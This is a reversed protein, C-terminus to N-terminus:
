HILISCCSVAKKPSVLRKPSLFDANMDDWDWDEAGEMLQSINVDQIRHAKVPTKPVVLVDMNDQLTANATINSVDKPKSAMQKLTPQRENDVSARSSKAGSFSGIAGNLLENMFDAEERETRTVPPM